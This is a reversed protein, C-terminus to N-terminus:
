AAVSIRRDSEIRYEFWEPWFWSPVVIRFLRRESAREFLIAGLIPTLSFGGFVYGFAIIMAGGTEPSLRLLNLTSIVFLIVVVVHAAPHAKFRYTGSTGCKKAIAASVVLGVLVGSPLTTVLIWFVLSNAVRVGVMPGVLEVFLLLFASMASLYAYYTVVRM